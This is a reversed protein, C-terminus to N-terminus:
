SPTLSQDAEEAEQEQIAALLRGANGLLGEVNNLEDQVDLVAQLENPGLNQRVWEVSPGPENALVLNGASDRATNGEEDVQLPRCLLEAVLVCSNKLMSKSITRLSAGTQAMKADQITRRTLSIQKDVYDETLAAPMEELLFVKGAVAVPERRRKIAFPSAQM